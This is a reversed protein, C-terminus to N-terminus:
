RWQSKKRTEKKDAQPGCVNRDECAKWGIVRALEAVRGYCTVCLNRTRAARKRCQMCGIGLDTM